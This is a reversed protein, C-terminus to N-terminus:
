FMANALDRRGQVTLPHQDGLATFLALLM